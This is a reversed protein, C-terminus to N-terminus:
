KKSGSVPKVGRKSVWDDGKAHPTVNPTVSTGSYSPSGKIGTPAGETAGETTVRENNSIKKIIDRAEQVTHVHPATM